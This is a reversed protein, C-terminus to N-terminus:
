GDLGLKRGVATDLTQRVSEVPIRDVAEALFGQVIMRMAERREIGRCMAYFTQEEDVQGVTAGHTCRVDDAEIELGPIADVRCDEDLVLADNRQYGDTQQAVQDVRIMGRWVARSRDQCVEKYLLDSRTHPAAHTQQTYYSLTQRGTTFTVGNVEAESGSGELTVDQHIHAFRAGLGGVTWQLHGDRAVRGAQHAFHEVRDGWNQLQVYQLRAGSGVILEVAGSHIGRARPTLSATEELLTATAGDELIVLTHSFDAANEEALGILSHLPRKLEVNRPVYLLTGGSLFASHWAMFRDATASVASFLHKELLDGHQEALEALDGFLVGQKAYEDDLPQVVHSRGSAHRIRGAFDDAHQLLTPFDGAAADGDTPLSYRDLTHDDIQLRRYEERDLPTGVLTAFTGHAERRRTALWAPESRESAFADFAAADFAAPTSTTQTM